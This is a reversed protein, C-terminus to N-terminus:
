QKAVIKKVAERFKKVEKTIDLALNIASSVAVGHIGSEFLKVIDNFQIGGIAMIPIDIARKNCLNIIEIYKEIGLIPKLNKKTKIFKFPGLGIYDVGSDALQLIDEFTNATGGIICNNGM